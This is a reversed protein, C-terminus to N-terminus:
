RCAQPVQAQSLSVGIRHKLKDFHSLTAKKLISATQPPTTTVKNMDTLTENAIPQQRVQAKKNPQLRM